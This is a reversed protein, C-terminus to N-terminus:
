PGRSRMPRDAAPYTTVSTFSRVSAPPVRQATGTPDLEAGGWEIVLLGTEVEDLVEKGICRREPGPGVELEAVVAAAPMLHVQQDKGAVGEIQDFELVVAARQAAVVVYPTAASVSGLVRRQQEGAVLGGVDLLPLYKRREAIVRVSGDPQIPVQLLRVATEFEALCLHPTLTSAHRFRQTRLSDHQAVLDDVGPVPRARNQDLSSASTLAATASGEQASGSTAGFATAPSLNEAASGGPSASFVSAALSPSSVCARSV